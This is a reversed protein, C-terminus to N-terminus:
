SSHRLSRARVAAQYATGPSTNAGTAPWWQTRAVTFPYWRADPGRRPRRGRAGAVRRATVRRGRVPRRRTMHYIM